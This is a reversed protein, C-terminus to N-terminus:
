LRRIWIYGGAPTVGTSSDIVFGKPATTGQYLVVGKKPVFGADDLALVLDRCFRTVDQMFRTSLTGNTQPIRLQKGGDFSM